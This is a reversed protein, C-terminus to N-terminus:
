QPPPAPPPPMLRGAANAMSSGPPPPPPPPPPPVPPAARGFVLRAPPDPLPTDLQSRLWLGGIMVFVAATALWRVAHHRRSRLDMLEVRWMLDDPVGRILRLLVQISAELNSRREPRGQDDDHAFEWLDSEIEARRVSRLGAPMGSTYLATWVRALAFAWRLM